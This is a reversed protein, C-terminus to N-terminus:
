FVEIDKLQRVKSAKPMGPLMPEYSIEMAELCQKINEFSANRIDPEDSFKKLAFNFDGLNIGMGKIDAKIENIDERIAKIEAQKSLITVAAQMIVSKCDENAM